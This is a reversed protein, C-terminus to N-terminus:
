SAIASAVGECFRHAEALLDVGPPLQFEEDVRLTLRAASERLSAPVADDDAIFRLLDYASNTRIAQGRRAAYERAAIGAARRACVRAQGENGKERAKKAKEYEVQVESLWDM